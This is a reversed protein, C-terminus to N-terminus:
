IEALRKLSEKVLKQNRNSTTCCACYTSEGDGLPTKRKVHWCGTRLPYFQGCQTCLKEIGQQTMRMTGQEINRKLLTDRIYFDALSLSRAVTTIQVEFKSAIEAIPMDCDYLEGILMHDHEDLPMETPIINM